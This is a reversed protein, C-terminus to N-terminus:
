DNLEIWCCNFLLLLHSPFSSSKYHQLVHMWESPMLIIPNINVEHKPIVTILSSKRAKTFNAGQLLSHSLQSSPVRKGGNLYTMDTNRKRGKQGWVFWGRFRDIPARNLTSVLIPVIKVTMVWEHISDFSRQKGRERALGGRHFSGTSFHLTIAFTTIGFQSGRTEICTPPLPYVTEDARVFSFKDCVTLRAYILALHVRRQM